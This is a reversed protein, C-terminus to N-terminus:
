MAVQGIGADVRSREWLACPYEVRAIAALFVDRADILHMRFIALGNICCVGAVDHGQDTQLVADCAVRETVRVVRDDEFPHVEWLRHNREGNLWLRGVVLLFEAFCKSRKLPFVGRESRLVVVFGALGDDRAHAFQMKFDDLVLEHTIHVDADIDACGADEYRSVM